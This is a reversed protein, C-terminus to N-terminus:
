IERYLTFAIGSTNYNNELVLASGSTFINVTGINGSTISFMNVLTPVYMDVEDDGSVFYVETYTKRNDSKYFTYKGSLTGANYIIGSNITVLQRSLYNFVAGSPSTVNSEEGYDEGKWYLANDNPKKYLKGSGSVGPVTGSNNNKIEVWGDIIINNTVEM